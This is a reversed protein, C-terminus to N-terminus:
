FKVLIDPHRFYQNHDICRISCTSAVDPIKVKSKRDPAPKELTVIVASHAKAYAVIWSDASDAYLHLAPEQYRNSRNLATMIESYAQITDPDDVPIPHFCPQCIWEKLFDNGKMLEERVVQLLDWKGECYIQQLVDWYSGWVDPPVIERNLRILINSDWVHSATSM